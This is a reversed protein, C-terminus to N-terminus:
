PSESFTHEFAREALINDEGDMLTLTIKFTEGEVSNRHILAYEGTPERRWFGMSFRPYIEGHDGPGILGNRVDMGATTHTCNFAHTSNEMRILVKSVLATSRGHNKVIPSIDWDNGHVSILYGEIEIQSSPSPAELRSTEVVNWTSNVRELELGMFPIERGEALFNIRATAADETERTIEYDLDPLGFTSAYQELLSSPTTRDWEEPMEWPYLVFTVPVEAGLAERLTSVTDVIGQHRRLGIEVTGTEEDSGTSSIAREVFELESLRRSAEELHEMDGSPKGVYLRDWWPREEFEIPVDDAVISSIREVEDVDLSSLYLHLLGREFDITYSGFYEDSDLLRNLAMCIDSVPAPPDGILTRRVELERFLIPQDYGVIKRVPGVYEAEMDRFSAVVCDMQYDFSVGQIPVGNERLREQAKLLRAVPRPNLQSLYVSYSVTSALLISISALVIAHKEM